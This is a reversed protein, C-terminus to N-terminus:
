GNLCLIWFANEMLHGVTGKCSMKLSSNVKEM